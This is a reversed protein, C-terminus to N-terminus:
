AVSMMCVVLGVYRQGGMGSGRCLVKDGCIVSRWIGSVDIIGSVDYMGSVWCVTSRGYCKIGM